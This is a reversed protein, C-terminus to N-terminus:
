DLIRHVLHDEKVSRRNVPEEEGWEEWNAAVGLNDSVKVAMNAYWESSPRNLLGRMSVQGVKCSSRRHCYQNHSNRGM